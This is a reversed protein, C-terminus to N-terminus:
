IMRLWLEDLTKGFIGKRDIFSTDNFYLKKSVVDDKIVYEIENLIYKYINSNEKKEISCIRGIIKEYEDEYYVFDGIEHKLNM